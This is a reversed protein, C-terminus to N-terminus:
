IKFLKIGTKDVSDALRALSLTLVPHIFHPAIDLLPVLVFAREHLRPHPIVLEPTELVLNDYFLMDMDILRPGNRFTPLRGLTEENKKLHALLDHPNLDTKASFVMNLFAPQDAFGWPETEYIQSKELVQVSSALSHMAAHLNELREGLNSGLAIYVIHAM